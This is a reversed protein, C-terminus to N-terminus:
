LNLTKVINLYIEKHGLENPHISDNLWETSKGENESWHLYNDVLLLNNKEAIGRIIDMYKKFDKRSPDKLITNSTQLIPIARCEIVKSILCKLNDNFINLTIDPNAESSSDNMGIMLIVVQPNFRLIREHVEKLLDKTTYGSVATNIFYDRSRGKNWRIYENLHEFFNREGNTHLCGHTISDGVFVWTIEERKMVENIRM